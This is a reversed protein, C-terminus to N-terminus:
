SHFVPFNLDKSHHLIPCENKRNIDLQTEKCVDEKFKVIIQTDAKFKKSISEKFNVTIQNNKTFESPELQLLTVIYKVTYFLLIIFFISSVIVLWNLM